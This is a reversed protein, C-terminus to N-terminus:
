TKSSGGNNKVTAADAQVPGKKECGGQCKSNRTNKIKPMRVCTLYYRM